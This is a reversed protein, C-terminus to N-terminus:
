KGEAAALKEDAKKVAEKGKDDTRRSHFISSRELWGDLWKRHKHLPFAPDLVVTKKSLFTFLYILVALASATFIVALVPSLKSGEFIGPVGMPLYAILLHSMVAPIVSRLQSVLVGEVIGIFFATYAATIGADTYGFRWNAYGSVIIYAAVAYLVASLVIAPIFHIKEFYSFIVGRFILELVVPVVVLLFLRRSAFTFGETLSDVILMFHATAESSSAGIFLRLTLVALFSLGAVFVLGIPNFWNVGGCDHPPRITLCYVILAAATAVCFCTFYINDINSVVADRVSENIYSDQVALSGKAARENAMELAKAEYRKPIVSFPYVFGIFVLLAALFLVLAKLVKM